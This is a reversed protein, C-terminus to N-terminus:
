PSSAQVRASGAPSARSCAEAAYDGALAYPVPVVTAGALDGGVEWTRRRLKERLEEFERELRTQEAALVADSDEITPATVLPPTGRPRGVAGPPGQAAALELGLVAEVYASQQQLRAAM